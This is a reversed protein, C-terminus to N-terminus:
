DTFGALIGLHLLLNNSLIYCVFAYLSVLLLALHANMVGAIFAGQVLGLATLCAVIWPEVRYQTYSAPKTVRVFTLVSTGSHGRKYATPM